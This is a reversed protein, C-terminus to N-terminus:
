RTAGFLTLAQRLRRAARARRMGRSRGAATSLAEAQRRAQEQELDLRANAATELAEMHGVPVAVADFGSPFNGILIKTV